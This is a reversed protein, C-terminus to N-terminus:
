SVSGRCQGDRLDGGYRGSGRSATLCSRVSSEPRPTSSTIVKASTLARRGGLPQARGASSGRSSGHRWGPRRPDRRAAGSAAVRGAGRGRRCRAGADRPRACRRSRCRARPHCPGSPRRDRVLVAAQADSIAPAPTVARQPLLRRPGRVEAVSLPRSSAVTSRNAGPVRRRSRLPRVAGLRRGGRGRISRRRPRCRRRGSRRGVFRDVRCRRALQM